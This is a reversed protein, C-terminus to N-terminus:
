PALGYSDFKHWIDTLDIVKSDRRAEDIAMAAVGAELADLISVPLRESEGRLFAALDRGMQADAGYHDIQAEPSKTYDIDEIRRGSPTATVRLFGRQFDGEAMGKAGLILFRRQEEPVCLNTHFALSTGSQYSILATQFDIIDADTNYADNGSQWVSTKSYM